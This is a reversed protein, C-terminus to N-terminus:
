AKAKPPRWPELARELQRDSLNHAKCLEVKAAEMPSRIGKARLKAAIERQERKLQSCKLNHLFMLEPRAPRHAPRKYKGELCDAILDRLERRLPKDSRLWACVVSRKGWGCTSTFVIREDGEITEWVEPAVPVDFTYGQPKKKM